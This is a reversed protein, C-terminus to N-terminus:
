QISLNGPLLLTKNSNVRLSAGPSIVQQVNLICEGSPDIIIENGAPLPNPPVNSGEWNSPEDWNGNGTFIFTGTIATIFGTNGIIFSSDLSAPIFPGATFAAPGGAPLVPGAPDYIWGSTYHGLLMAAAPDATAGAVRESDAYNFTLSTTQDTVPVGASINWTRNITKLIDINEGPEIGSAVRVSYSKPSASSNTITVANYGAAFPAVPFLQGGTVNTVTLKGLSNTVITPIPSTGAQAIRGAAIAANYQNLQLFGNQLQLKFPLLLNNQLSVGAANNVVLSITDTINSLALNQLTSGNMEIANQGDFGRTAKINGGTQAADGRVQMLFAGGPANGATRNTFDLTGGTMTFRGKVILTNPYAAGLNDFNFTANGTVTGGTIKFESTITDKLNNINSNPAALELRGGNVELSHITYGNPNTTMRVSGSGTNVIRVSDMVTNSSPLLLASSGSVTQAPCDWVLLGDFRASSNFNMNSGAIGKVHILSGNTYHANPASGGSRQWDLLSGNLFSITGANGNSIGGNMVSGTNGSAVRVTGSISTNCFSAPFSNVNWTCTFAGFIFTGEIVANTTTFNGFTQISVGRTAATGEITLSSGTGVRFVTLGSVNVNGITILTVAGSSFVVTSNNIIQLGAINPNVDVNVTTTVGDFFVTDNFTPVGNAWNAPDSWNNSMESGTWFNVTANSFLCLITFCILSYLKKMLLNAPTFILSITKQSFCATNIKLRTLYKYESIVKFHFLSLSKNSPIITLKARNGSGGTGNQHRPLYIFKFLIENM